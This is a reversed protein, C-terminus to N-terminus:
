RSRRSKGIKLHKKIVSNKLEPYTSIMYEELERKINSFKSRSIRISKSSERENSSLLFHVHPHATDYHPFALGLGDTRKQLYQRALDEMITPNSIITEKDLNSFSIIEHYMAITSRNNKTRYADNKKFAAIIDGKSNNGSDINHLIIWSLKRDQDKDLIYKVPQAYNNSKRTLSKIIM